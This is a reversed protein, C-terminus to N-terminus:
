AILNRVTEEHLERKRLLEGALLDLKESREHERMMVNVRCWLRNITSYTNGHDRHALWAFALSYAFDTEPEHCQLADQKFARELRFLEICNGPYCLHRELGLLRGVSGALLVTVYDECANIKSEHGVCNQVFTSFKTITPRERRRNKVRISLRHISVGYEVGVVALASNSYAALQDVSIPNIGM